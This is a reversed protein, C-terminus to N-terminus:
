ELIAEVQQLFSKYLIRQSIKLEEPTLISTLLELKKEYEAKAKAILEDRTPPPPPPVSPQVPAPGRQYAPKPKPRAIPIDGTFIFFFIGFFIASLTFVFFTFIFSHILIPIWDDIRSSGNYICFALFGLTACVKATAKPKPDKAIMNAPFMLLLSVILLSWYDVM